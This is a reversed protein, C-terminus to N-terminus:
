NAFHFFLKIPYPFHLTITPLILFVRISTKLASLFPTRTLTEWKQRPPKLILRTSFKIHMEHWGLRILSALVHLELFSLPLFFLLFYTDTENESPLPHLDSVCVTDSRVSFLTKIKWFFIVFRSIRNNRNPSTTFHKHTHEMQENQCASLSLNLFIM